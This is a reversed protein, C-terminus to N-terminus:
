VERPWMDSVCTDPAMKSASTVRHRLLARATTLEATTVVTHLSQATRGMNLISADPCMDWTTECARTSHCM